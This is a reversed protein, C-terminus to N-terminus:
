RKSSAKMDWVCQWTVKGNVSAMATNLVQSTSGKHGKIIAGTQFLMEMYYQKHCENRWSVNISNRECVCCQALFYDLPQSLVTGQLWERSGRPQRFISGGLSAASALARAYHATRACPQHWHGLATRQVLM